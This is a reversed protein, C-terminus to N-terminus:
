SVGVAPMLALRRNGIKLRMAAYANRLCADAADIENREIHRKARDLYKQAKATVTFALTVIRSAM